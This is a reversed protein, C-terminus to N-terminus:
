SFCKLCLISDRLGCKGKMHETSHCYECGVLETLYHDKKKPPPVEVMDVLEQDARPVEVRRSNQEVYISRLQEYLFDIVLNLDLPIAKSCKQGIYAAYLEDSFQGVVWTYVEASLNQRSPEDAEAQDILFRSKGALM